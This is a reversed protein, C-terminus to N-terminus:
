HHISSSSKWKKPSNVHNRELLLSRQVQFAETHGSHGRGERLDLLDFWDVPYSDLTLSVVQTKTNIKNIM